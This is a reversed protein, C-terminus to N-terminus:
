AAASDNEAKPPCHREILAHSLEWHASVLKTRNLELLEHPSGTSRMAQRELVLDAIEGILNEVSAREPHIRTPVGPRLISM